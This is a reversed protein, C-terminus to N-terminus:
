DKLEFREIRAEAKLKDVLQKLHSDIREKEFRSRLIPGAETLSKKGAPKRDYVKILHYGFRTSVVDSMQDPQLSFAATEFAPAMQATGFYGLDGGNVKSPGESFKKAMAAFDAGDQIRTRIEQIKKKAKKKTEDDAWPSVKILIHAAHVLVDHEFEHPNADYYAQIEADSVSAKPTIDTEVIKQAVLTRRIRDKIDTETLGAEKISKRYTRQSPYRAVSAQYYTEVQDDEIRIGQKHGLQDLLRLNILSELIETKLQEYMLGDVLQGAEHFRQYTSDLEQKYEAHKIASGNVLAVVYEASQNSSDAPGSTTCSIFSVICLIAPFLNLLAIRM